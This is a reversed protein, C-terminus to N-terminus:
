EARKIETIDHVTGIMRVPKGNKDFSVEAKEHVVRVSGDPWVIRHDLNYPRGEYLAESVSHEVFERDEAHVYSLFAEYTAGFQQPTLGFIRYIEDSWLLKDKVIDWDWNGLHAIREAEV